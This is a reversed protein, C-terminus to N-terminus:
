CKLLELYCRSIISDNNTKNIHKSIKEVYKRCEAGRLHTLDLISFDKQGSMSLKLIEYTFGGENVVVIKILKFNNNLLYDKVKHISNNTSIIIDFYHTYSNRKLSELIECVLEGGVGAIIVLNDSCEIKVERADKLTFTYNDNEQLKNQLGLVIRQVCDVFEIKQCNGLQYIEHGIKGHDCCLDWVKQYNRDKSLNLIEKIRLSSIAQEM